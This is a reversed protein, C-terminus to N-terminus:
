GAGEAPWADHEAYYLVVRTAEDADLKTVGRMQKWGDLVDRAVFIELFYTKGPARRAAVEDIPARSETETLELCLAESEPTFRGAVQAAFVTAEKPFTHIQRILERLLM